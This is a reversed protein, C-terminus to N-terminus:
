ANTLGIDYVGRICSKADWPVSFVWLQWSVADLLIFESVCRLKIFKGM